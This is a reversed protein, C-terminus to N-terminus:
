LIHHPNPLLCSTKVRTKRLRHSSIKPLSEEMFEEDMSGNMWCIGVSCSGHQLCQVPGHAAPYTCVSNRPKGLKSDALSAFLCCIFYCVTTLAIVFGHESAPPLLLSLAAVKMSCRSQALCKVCMGEIKNVDRSMQFILIARHCISTVWSPFV